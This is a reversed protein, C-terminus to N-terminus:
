NVSQVCTKQVKNQLINNSQHPSKVSTVSLFPTHGPPSVHKKWFLPKPSNKAM